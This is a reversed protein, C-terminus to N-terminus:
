RTPSFEEVRNRGSNAVFLNGHADVALSGPHLLRGQGVQTIPSGTKSVVQVVNNAYDAVYVTGHADVAVGHPRAFGTGTKGWQTFEARFAGDASLKQVRNNLFDAVYVNGAGDVAVGVPGSFQRRESGPATGGWVGLVASTPALKQVRNNGFDAVYINGAADVALSHPGRFQRPGSGVQGAGALLKGAPSLKQIRNNASDAVYINGAADLAVGTPRQFMGPTSGGEPGGWVALLKGAPSFKQIRNNGADAVYLNGAADIAVDEPDNLQGSASGQVGGIVMGLRFAPASSSSSGRTALVVAAVAALLVILTAGGALLFPRASRRTEPRGEVAVSRVAAPVSPADHRREPTYLPVTSDVSPRAAETGSANRVAAVFATMDPFRDEPEKALAKLIVSEMQVPIRQNRERPLPLNAYIHQYVVAQPTDAQFPVVGTLMEYLVIGLAYQDTRPSVKEGRAQEPAMYQPTGLIAKGSGTLSVNGELVRAIGFDSLLPWDPRQMLVNAPKVDRHVIGQGHAYGLADAVPVILSIVREVDMPSGMLDKLTGWEVLRMVFYSLGDEEGYNYIPLINAHDLRAVNRAEARFRASFDPDHVLYPPLLKIAVYRDLGPDYAKYVVAMGGMGVQEVLRYAGLNRGALTNM